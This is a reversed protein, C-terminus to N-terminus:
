ILHAPIVRFINAITRHAMLIGSILIPSRLDTRLHIGDIGIRPNGLLFRSKGKQHRAVLLLARSQKPQKRFERTTYQDIIYTFMCSSHDTHFSYLLSSNQGYPTTQRDQGHDHQEAQRQRRSGEGILGFGGCHCIGGHYSLRRIRALIRCCVISLTSRWHARRSTIGLDDLRRPIAIRLCARLQAVVNGTLGNNSVVLASHRFKAVAKLNFAIGEAISIVVARKGNVLPNEHIALAIVKVSITQRYATTLFNIVRPIVECIVAGHLSTPSGPLVAGFAVKIM